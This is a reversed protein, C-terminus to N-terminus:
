YAEKQKFLHRLRLQQYVRKYFIEEWDFVGKLSIPEVRDMYFTRIKFDHITCDKMVELEFYGWSTNLEFLTNKETRGDERIQLPKETLEHKLTNLLHYPMEQFNLQKCQHIVEQKIDKESHRTTNKCDFFEIGIIENKKNCWVIFHGIITPLLESATYTYYEFCRGIIRQTPHYTISELNITQIISMNM